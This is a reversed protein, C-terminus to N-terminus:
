KKRRKRESFGNENTENENTGIISDLKKDARSYFNQWLIVYLFFGVSCLFLINTVKVPILNLVELTSFTVIISIACCNKQIRTKLINLGRGLAYIISIPMFAVLFVSQLTINTFGLARFFENTKSLWEM